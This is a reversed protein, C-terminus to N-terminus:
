KAAEEGESKEGAPKIETVTLTGDEGVTAMVIVKTANEEVELYKQALENGKDDFKMLKDGSVLGYGSDPGCKLACSKPHGEAAEEANDKELMKAGCENDILVGTHKEAGEAKDDAGARPALSFVLLASLALVSVIYKRATM